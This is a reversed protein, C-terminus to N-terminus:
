LKEMKQELEKVWGEVVKMNKGMLTEGNVMAQEVKELGERWKKIDNAMEAQKQETRDLSESATAADAHIARL